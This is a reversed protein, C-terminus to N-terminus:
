GDDGTQNCEEEQAVLVVGGWMLAPKSEDLIFYFLLNVSGIARWMVSLSSVYPLKIRM